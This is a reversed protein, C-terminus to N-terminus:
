SLRYFPRPGHDRDARVVQLSDADAQPGLFELVTASGDPAHRRAGGM